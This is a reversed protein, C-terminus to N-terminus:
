PRPSRAGALEARVAGGRAALQGGGVDPLDVVDTRPGPAAAAGAREVDARAGPAAAGAAAGDQRPGHRRGPLRRPRPEVPVVAVRTGAAPLSSTGGRVRGTHSGGAAQSRRKRRAAGEAVRTGRDRCGAPRGPRRRRPRPERPAARGGTGRGAGGPARLVLA